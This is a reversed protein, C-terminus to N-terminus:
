KKDDFDSRALEVIEMLDEWYGDEKLKRFYLVDEDTELESKSVAGLGLWVAARKPLSRNDIRELDFETM